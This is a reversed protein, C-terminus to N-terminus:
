LSDDAPQDLQRQFNLLLHRARKSLVDLPLVPATLGTADNEYRAFPINWLGRRACFPLQFGLEIGSLFQSAIWSESVHKSRSDAM